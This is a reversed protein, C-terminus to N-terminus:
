TFLGAVDINLTVDTGSPTFPLGTVNASDLLAILMKTSTAGGTEKYMVIYSVEGGSLATWTPNACDFTGDAAVTQSTIAQDTGVFEGVLDDLFDDTSPSPTHATIVLAFKLNDTELDVADASSTGLTGPAARFKKYIDYLFSAM